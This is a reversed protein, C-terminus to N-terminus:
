VRERCSARGIEANQCYFKVRARLDPYRSVNKEGMRCLIELLEIAYVKGGDGVIDALLGTSWGSGHGVDMIKEGSVAGLLELMFVVTYPQSITQGEGIPLATDEYVLSALDEGVFDKRDVKKLADRISVSKLVGKKGLSKILQDMSM